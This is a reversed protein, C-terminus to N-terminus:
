FQQYYDVLHRAFTQTIERVPKHSVNFMLILLSDFAGSKEIHDAGRPSQYAWLSHLLEKEHQLMSYTSSRKFNGADRKELAEVSPL